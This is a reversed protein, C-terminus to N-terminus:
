TELQEVNDLYTYIYIDELYSQVTLIDCKTDNQLNQIYQIYCALHGM